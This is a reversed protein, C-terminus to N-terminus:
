TGGYADFGVQAHYNDFCHPLLEAFAQLASCRHPSLGVCSVKWDM